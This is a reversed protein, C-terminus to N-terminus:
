IFNQVEYSGSIMKFNETLFLAKFKKGNGDAIETSDTHASNDKQMVPQSLFRKVM